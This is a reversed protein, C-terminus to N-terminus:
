AQPKIINPNLYTTAIRDKNLKVGWLSEPV